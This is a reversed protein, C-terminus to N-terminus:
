GISPFNLTSLQHNITSLFSAFDSSPFASHPIPPQLTPRADQRDGYKRILKATISLFTWFDTNMLGAVAPDTTLERKLIRALRLNM